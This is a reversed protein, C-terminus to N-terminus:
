RVFPNTQKETGITTQLGHGSYVKTQEPLVLLQKRISDLLTPMSGGPFDTRGISGAFLTDGSFVMGEDRCYLSICGPTHGPTALVELRIQELEITDGAGLLEDAPGIKFPKGVMLSLNKTTSGLMKANDRGIGIPIKGFEEELLKVGAIHDCHGHTLIIKSPQLSEERLFAVLPEASFGPDIILCEKAQATSRLVYCNTEFEGLVFCDIQV